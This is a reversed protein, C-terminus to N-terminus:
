RPRVKGSASAWRRLEALLPTIVAPAFAARLREMARASQHVWLQATKRNEVRQAMLDYDADNRLSRLDDLQSGVSQGDPNSASLLLKLVQDHGEGSRSIHFHSELLSRAALFMAYYTRSIATRCTAADGARQLLKGALRRFDESDFM